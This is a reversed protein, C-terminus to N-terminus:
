SASASAARCSTRTATGSASRRACAPRRSRRWRASSASTGASESAQPDALPEQVLAGVSMRPNLSQYPDQFVMQVRRRLAGCTEVAAALQARSACRARPRRSSARSRAASRRSAAARVRRRDGAGRRPAVRPRRRRAGAGVRGGRAASRSTCRSTACTSCRRDTAPSTASVAARRGPWPAFLCRVAADTASVAARREGRSAAARRAHCRPAFRCGDPARRSRAPRRPDAPALERPGGITPFAGLLRRTYPHQPARSSTRSPGTEAIQGAYMIAVRDCTEALVSLDHTILIM